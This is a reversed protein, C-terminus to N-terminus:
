DSLELVDRYEKCMRELGLWERGHKEYGHIIEPAGGTNRFYAPGVIMCGSALAEILSNSCADNFYTYVFYQCQRFWDAMNEQVGLFTYREDNYFDFNYEVLDPSYAGAIFLNAEPRSRSVESFFHRAVEWNKTEDRNMRCYMYNLKTNDRGKGNFADLDVGNMIVVSNPKGLFDDLYKKAWNSQYIVIDSLEVMRKMRFMGKGQNRSHRLANDIRTVVEMGDAKAQEAREPKIMSASPIFFIDASDYNDTIYGEMGKKFNDIFSWGGGQSQTSDNALYIM